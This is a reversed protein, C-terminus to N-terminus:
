ARFYWGSINVNGGAGANGVEAAITSTTAFSFRDKTANGGGSATAPFTKGYNADWGSSTTASAFPLQLAKTATWTLTTVSTLTISFFVVPGFAFFYGWYKDVNNFGAATPTTGLFPNFADQQMGNMLSIWAQRQAAESNPAVLNIKRITM